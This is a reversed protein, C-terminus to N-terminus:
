KFFESFPIVKGIPGKHKGNIFNGYKDADFIQKMKNGKLELVKWASGGHGALDKSWWRNSITNDQIFKGFKPHNITKGVPNWLKKAQGLGKGIKFLGAAMGVIPVAAGLSMAADKWRGRAASIGANVLDAAIGFVPVLGAADLTRQIGDFERNNQYRQYDQYIMEQVPDIYASPITPGFSNGDGPFGESNPEGYFDDDSGTDYGDYDDEPQPRDFWSNVEDEVASRCGRDSACGAAVSILGGQYIEERM